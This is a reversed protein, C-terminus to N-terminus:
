GIAQEWTTIRRGCHRCERVRFIKKMRQRTYVVYMHRCGCKPCEFGKTATTENSLKEPNAM